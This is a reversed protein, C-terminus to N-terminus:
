SIEPESLASQPETGKRSLNDFVIVHWGSRLFAEAANVGIFGAGGTIVVTRSAM